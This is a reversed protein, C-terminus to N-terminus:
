LLFLGGEEAFGMRECFKKFKEKKWARNINMGIYECGKYNKYLAALTKFDDCDRWPSNQLSGAIVLEVCSGPVDGVLSYNQPDFLVFGTLVDKSARLCLDKEQTFNDLFYNKAREQLEALNKTEFIPLPKRKAVFNLFYPWIQERM